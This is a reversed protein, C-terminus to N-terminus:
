FFLVFFVTTSLKSKLRVCISYWQHTLSMFIFVLPLFQVSILKIRRFIVAPGECNSHSHQVVSHFNFMLFSNALSLFCSDFVLQHRLRRWPVDWFVGSFLFLDQVLFTLWKTLMVLLYKYWALVWFKKKM